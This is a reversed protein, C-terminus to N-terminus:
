FSTLESTKLATLASTEQNENLGYNRCYALCIPNCIAVGDILDNLGPYASFEAFGGFGSDARIDTTSPM